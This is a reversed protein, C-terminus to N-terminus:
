LRMFNPPDTPVIENWRFFETRQYRQPLDRPVDGERHLVSQSISPQVNEGSMEM